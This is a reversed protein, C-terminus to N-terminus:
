GFYISFVFMVALALEIVCIAHFLLVWIGCLFFEIDSILVLIEPLPKGRLF